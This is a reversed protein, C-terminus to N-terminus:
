SASRRAALRLLLVGLAAGLAAAKLMRIRESPERAPAASRGEAPSGSGPPPPDGSVSM